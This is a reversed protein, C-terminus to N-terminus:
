SEPTYFDPLYEKVIAFPAPGIRLVAQHFARDSYTEGFIKKAYEKLELFELYGVYYKLYHSPEETM